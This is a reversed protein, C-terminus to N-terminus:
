AGGTESGMQSANSRTAQHSQGSSSIMLRTSSRIDASISPKITFYPEGVIGIAVQGQSLLDDPAVLDPTPRDAQGLSTREPAAVCDHNTWAICHIATSM